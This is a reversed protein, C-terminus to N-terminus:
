VWQPIPGSTVPVSFSTSTRISSRIRSRTALRGARAGLSAGFALVLDFDGLTGPSTFEVIFELTAEGQTVNECQFTKGVLRAECNTAATAEQALMTWSPLGAVVMACMVRTRRM